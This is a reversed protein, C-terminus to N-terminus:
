LARAHREPKRPLKRASDIKLMGDLRHAACNRFRLAVARVRNHECTVHSQLRACAAIVKRVRHHCQSGFKRIDCREDGAMRMLCNWTAQRIAHEERLRVVKSNVHATDIQQKISIRFFQQTTFRDTLQHIVTELRIM